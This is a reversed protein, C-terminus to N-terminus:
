KKLKYYVYNYLLVIENNVINIYTPEEFIDCSVYEPCANESVKDIKENLRRDKIENWKGECYYKWVM